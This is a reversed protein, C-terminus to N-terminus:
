GEFCVPESYYKNELLERGSKPLEPFMQTQQLDLRVLDLYVPLESYEGVKNVDGAELADQITTYRRAKASYREVNPHEAILSKVEALGLQYPRKDDCYVKHGSHIVTESTGNNRWTGLKKGNPIVINKALKVGDTQIVLLERPEVKNEILFRTIACRTGATILAHYFRNRYAADARKEIMKGIVANGAVKAVKGAMESVDRQGYLWEMTEKYPYRVPADQETGAYVGIGTPVFSGIGYEEVIRVEELSYADEDLWGVATGQLGNPLITIIPSCHVWPSDPDIYFRGEVMGYRANQEREGM